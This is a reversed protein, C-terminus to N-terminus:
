NYKAPLGPPAFRGRPGCQKYSLSVTVTVTGTGTVDVYAKVFRKFWTDDTIDLEVSGNATLQTFAGNGVDTYTGDVTDCHQLKIDVATIGTLAAITAIGGGIITNQMDGAFVLPDGDPDWAPYAADAAIGAEADVLVRKKSYVISHSM